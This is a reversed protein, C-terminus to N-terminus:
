RKGVTADFFDFTAQIAKLSGAQTDAPTKGIFSHDLGPLELVTVPVGSARLKAAMAHSQAPPVTKDESGFILLTPPDKADVHAIPSAAAVVDPCEAVKCGLYRSESGQGEERRPLAAFDFVGYWIVASQTCADPKGAAATRCDMAALGALQGGASGGWIATRATDIGYQSAHEKLWVLADRVDDIAAPFRAEGSLRYNVSAVVYGRSALEALVGPFNAFAGAARSHGGVWGGGHVYMILPKAANGKPPLYVDLKQPQYGPHTAYTLNPLGVVGKPFSATLKPYNDEGVIAPAIPVRVPAAQALGSSLLLGVSLALGLKHMEIRSINASNRVDLCWSWDLRTRSVPVSTLSFRKLEPHNDGATEAVGVVLQSAFVAEVL